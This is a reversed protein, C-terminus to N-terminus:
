KYEEEEPEEYRKSGGNGGGSASQMSAFDPTEGAAFPRIITRYDDQAAVGEIYGTIIGDEVFFTEPAGEVGLATVLEGNYDNLVKDYPNGHRGLWQGTAAPADSWAVGIINASPMDKDLRLWVPHEFVCYRCWSAFINIIYRGKQFDRHSVGNEERDKLAFEPLPKGIMPSIDRGSTYRQELANVYGYILPALILAPALLAAALATKASRKDTQATKLTM